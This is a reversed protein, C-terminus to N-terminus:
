SPDGGNPSPPPDPRQSELSHKSLYYSLARQSVGIMDAADKKVGRATGLARKVTEREVWDVNHRLLM